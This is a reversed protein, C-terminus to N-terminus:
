PIVGKAGNNEICSIASRLVSCRDGLIVNGPNYISVQITHGSETYKFFYLIGESGCKAPGGLLTALETKLNFEAEPDACVALQRLSILKSPDVEDVTDLNLSLQSNGDGEKVNVGPHLGKEMGNIRSHAASLHDPVEMETKAASIRPTGNTVPLEASQYDDSKRNSVYQESLVVPSRLTVETTKSAMMPVPSKSAPLKVTVRHIDQNSSLVKKPAALPVPADASVADPKFLETKQVFVSSVQKKPDVSRRYTKQTRIAPTIAAVESETKTIFSDTRGSPLAVPQPATDKVYEKQSISKPSIIETVQDRNNLRLDTKQLPVATSPPDAKFDARDTIKKLAPTVPSMEDPIEAQLESIVTEPQSVDNLSPDPQLSRYRHNEIIPEKVNMESPISKKEFPVLGQVPRLLDRQPRELVRSHSRIEPLDTESQKHFVIAPVDQLIEKNQKVAPSFEKEPVMDRVEPPVYEPPITDMEKEINIVIEVPELVEPAPIVPIFNNILYIFILALFSFSLTLVTQPWEIDHRLFGSISKLVPQEPRLVRRDYPFANTKKRRRDSYIDHTARPMPINCVGWGYLSEKQFLM